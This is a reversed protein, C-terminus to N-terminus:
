NNHERRIAALTEETINKPIRALLKVLLDGPQPHRYMRLGHGRVRLMTNPQTGPPVTLSIHNGTLGTIELQCGLVLDWISVQQECILHQEQRQWGPEPRIRFTIVLDGGGPALKAYRVSAGDDVGAPIDIEVTGSGLSSSIALQRRGGMAVDRLNIWLQMRSSAVNDAHDRFRTGFMSFINDFDFGAHHHNM